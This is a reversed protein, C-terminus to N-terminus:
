KPLVQTQPRRTIPSKAQIDLEKKAWYKFQSLSPINETSDPTNEDTISYFNNLMEHYAYKLSTEGRRLYWRKLAIRIIEKDKETIRM